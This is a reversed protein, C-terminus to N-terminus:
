LLGQRIIYDPLGNADTPVVDDGFCYMVVAAGDDSISGDGCSDRSGAATRVSVLSTTRSRLDRVYIDSDRPGTTDDATLNGTTAFVVYRGGASISPTDSPRANEVGDPGVSARVIKGAERDRVYVDMRRNTDSRRYREGSVFAVFRGGASISPQHLGQRGVGFRRTSILDFRGTRMDRVYLDRTHDHDAGVLRVMSTFAIYRGSASIVCDESWSPGVLRTVGSRLSRVVVRADGTPPGALNSAATTFCVRRGNASIQGDFSDNNGLREASSVSVLTTRGRVVDRVFVDQRRRVDEPVVDRGRSGFVVYRGDSSISPYEYGTGMGVQRENSKVSVRTTTGTVLDRRFTDTTGNTDGPVLNTAVSAFAVYRGTRSVAAVVATEGYSDTQEGASSLSVISSSEAVKAPRADGSAAIAPTGLVVTCAVVCLCSKLVM